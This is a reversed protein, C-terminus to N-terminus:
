RPQLTVEAWGLGDSHGDGAPGANCQLTITVPGAPMAELPITFPLWGREETKERPNIFREWAVDTRGNYGVLVSPAVGDTPTETGRFRLAVYGSLTTSIPIPQLTFTIYADDPPNPQTLVIQRGDGTGLPDLGAFRVQMHANDSSTFKEAAAIKDKDILSYPLWAPINADESHPSTLDYFRYDRTPTLSKFRRIQENLAPPWNKPTGSVIWLTAGQARVYDLLDERIVAPPINWGKRQAIFHNVPYSFHSWENTFIVRDTQSCSERIKQGLQLLHPDYEYVNPGQPEPSTLSKLGVVCGCLIIVPALIVSLFTLTPRGAFQNSVWSSSKDLAHGVGVAVITSFISFYYYHGYVYHDPDMTRGSAILRQEVGHAEATVLFFILYSALWWRSVASTHALEWLGYILFPILSLPCVFNTFFTGMSDLWFSPLFLLGVMQSLRNLFGGPRYIATSYTEPPNAFVRFNQWAGNTLNMHALWLVIGLGIATMALVMRRDGWWFRGFTSWACALAPFVLVLGYPRIANALIWLGVGLWLYRSEGESDRWALFSAFAGSLLLIWMSDDMVVRGMIVSFPLLLYTIATWMGTRSSGSLSRGINYLPWASLLSCGITVLRALEVGPAIHLVKALSVILIHYIPFQWFFFAEPSWAPKPWLLATTGQEWIAQILLMAQCQKVEDFDLPPSSLNWARLLAGLGVAVCCFLIDRRTVAAKM